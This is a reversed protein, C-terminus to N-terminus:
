AYILKKIPVKVLLMGVGIQAVVYFAAQLLRTSMLALYSSGYLISIWLTNLLLSCILQNFIVACALRSFNPKKHLFVGFIVGTLFATLTFGPFFAGSPFLISGILDSVMGIIGGGLPGLLIGGLMVPVFGFGIKVNWATISAFRSLVVQVAVLAAMLVLTRTEFLSSTERGTELGYGNEEKVEM